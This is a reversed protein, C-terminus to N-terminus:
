TRVGQEYNPAPVEMYESRKELMPRHRISINDPLIKSIKHLKQLRLFSDYYRIPITTLLNFIAPVENIGAM